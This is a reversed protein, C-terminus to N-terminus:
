LPRSQAIEVLAMEEEALRRTIFQRENETLYTQLLKQYRTINARHAFVLANQLESMVSSRVFNDKYELTM